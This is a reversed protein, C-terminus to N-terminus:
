SGASGDRWVLLAQAYVESRSLGLDAAIKRVSDKLSLDSHDRYWALLEVLDTLAPKEEGAGEILIVYEGKIKMTPLAAIIGSLTGRLCREHVKTLEKCVVAPRDGLVALCDALGKLLRHPSEYFILLSEHSSLMRLLRVRESKRAPLFGGFYFRDAGLGAVSVAATLASPGPVTVVRIGHDHAKAVLIFGPDSVCPVGADSVLAVDHGDLLVNIIKESQRAERQKYYSILKTKIQLHTLLKRTHRTDESAILAVEKLTRVARFSIDELNGIPTAVVYLVGGRTASDGGPETARRRGAM